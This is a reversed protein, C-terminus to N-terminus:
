FRLTFVTREDPSSTVGIDGGHFRVIQRALSLGIGSGDSKTSFFPVFIKELASYTIGAGNDAVQVIIKGRAGLRASLEVLGDNRGALADIANVGVNILAQELLDIDASLELTEPEVVCDFRIADADPRAALLQKVRMLLDSLRVTRFEPAPLQALQRYSEIFRVLGQSRAAITEVVQDLDDFTRVDLTCTNDATRQEGAAKIMDRATTALSAIPTISNTIEHSLVRALQQWAELEREDLERAIDHVAILKLVNQGIKVQTAAFSLQSARESRDFHLLARQGPSLEAITGPLSKAVSELDQLNRASDLGLLRKAAPNILRVEDNDAVAILGTDIHTVITNLYRFSEEREVRVRRFEDLVRSLAQRLERHSGGRGDDPYTQSLDDQTVSTLIRSVDRNTRSVYRILDWVQYMLAVGLLVSVMGMRQHAAFYVLVLCNVAM